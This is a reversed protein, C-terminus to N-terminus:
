CRQRRAAPSAGPSSGPSVRGGPRAALGPPLSAPFVGLADTPWGRVDDPWCVVNRAHAVVRNAPREGRGRMAKVFYRWGPAKSVAGGHFDGFGLHVLAYPPAQCEVLEGRDIAELFTRQWVAEIEAPPANLPGGPLSVRGALLGTMATSGVCCAISDPRRGPNAHDPRGDPRQRIRSTGDIHWVNLIPWFGPSLEDLSSIVVVDAAPDRWDDPLAAAFARGIPGGHVELWAPHCFEYCPELAITAADFAPLRGLVRYGSHFQLTRERAWAPLTGEAPTVDLRSQFRRAGRRPHNLVEIDGARRALAVVVEAAAGPPLYRGAIPLGAPLFVPEGDHPLPGADGGLVPHPAAVLLAVEDSPRTRLWAPDYLPCAFPPATVSRDDVRVVQLDVVIPAGGWREACADVLRRALPGGERRITGADAAYWGAELGRAPRDSVAEVRLPPTGAVWELGADAAADAREALVDDLTAVELV